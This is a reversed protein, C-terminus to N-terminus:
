LFEICLTFINQITGSSSWTGLGDVAVSAFGGPQGISTPAFMYFENTRFTFQDATAEGVCFLVEVTLIM